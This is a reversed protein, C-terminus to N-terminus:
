WKTKTKQSPLDLRARLEKLFDFYEQPPRDKPVRDNILHRMYASLTLGSKNVRRLLKEYERDSIFFHIQNNRKNM